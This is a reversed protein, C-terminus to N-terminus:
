FLVLINNLHKFLFVVRAWSSCLLLPGQHETFNGQKAEASGSCGSSQKQKHWRQTGQSIWMHAFIYRFWASFSVQILESIQSACRSSSSPMWYHIEACSLYQHAQASGSISQNQDNFWSTGLSPTTMELESWTHNTWCYRPFNLLQNSKIDIKLYAEFLLMVKIRLIQKKRTRVTIDM